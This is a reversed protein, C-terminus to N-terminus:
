LEMGYLRSEREAKALRVMREFKRGLKELVRISEENGPAALGVLRKLQFKERAMEVVARASEMAYGRGRFEPLFAFGIDVDELTERKLLGCIGMARGSSKEEVVYLGFGHREYSAAPGTRVHEIADAITRVKRDGINRLFAEDNFLEVVFAADGEEMKRLRVRETEAVQMRKEEIMM